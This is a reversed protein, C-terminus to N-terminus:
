YNAASTLFQRTLSRGLVYGTSSFTDVSDGVTNALNAATM